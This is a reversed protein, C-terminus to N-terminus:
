LTLGQPAAATLSAIFDQLIPAQTVLDSFSMQMSGNPGAIQVREAEPRSSDYSISYGGTPTPACILQTQNTVTAM